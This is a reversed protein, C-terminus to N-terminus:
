YHDNEIKMSILHMDNALQLQQTPPMASARGHLAKTKCVGQNKYM